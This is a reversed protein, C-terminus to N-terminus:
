GNMTKGSVPIEPHSPSPHTLIMPNVKAVQVERGDHEHVSKRESINKILIFKSNM